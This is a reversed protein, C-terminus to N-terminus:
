SARAERRGTRRTGFSDDAYIVAIREIGLTHLHTVAKEAERQYTARV